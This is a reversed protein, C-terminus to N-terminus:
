GDLRSETPAFRWRRTSARLVFRRFTAPSGGRSGAVRDGHQYVDDCGVSFDRVAAFCDAASGCYVGSSWACRRHDCPAIDRCAGTAARNGRKRGPGHSHWDGTDAANGLVLDRWLDWARGSAVGPNCILRRAAHLVPSGLCRPEGAITDAQVGCDAAQSQHRAADVSRQHWRHRRCRQHAGRAGCWESDGAYQTTSRGAPTATSTKRTFTASSAWWACTTRTTRGNALSRASPMEDIRGSSALWRSM